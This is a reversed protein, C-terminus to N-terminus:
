LYIEEFDQKSIEHPYKGNAAAWAAAKGAAEGMAAASGSMRYSSHAKFDGSICRGAMMLGKVDKAILARLPIDYPHTVKSNKEISGVNKKTAHIDIGANIHCVADEFTAGNYLDNQCVCYLGEIRRGERVGINEATAVLQINKWIGGSNRLANVLINIEKRANVTAKTIDRANTAKCDYEHNAVLMYVDNGVHYLAPLTYSPKVGCRLFEDLLKQKPTKGEGYPLTNDFPKMDGSKIGSLLAVLSMPQTEGTGSKGEEYRCKAMAGLDGDGSCDIFVKAGWAQKGSKSDTIVYRLVGNETVASTLRTHLLFDANADLLKEELILKMQEVDSIFISDRAIRGSGREKLEQTIEKIIGGKDHADLVWSLAGATWIGGICGNKEILLVKAGKRAASIAACAGAPGGGVVVVDYNGQVPVEDTIKLFKEM